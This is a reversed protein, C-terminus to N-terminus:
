THDCTDHECHAPTSQDAVKPRKRNNFAAGIGKGSARVDNYAMVNTDVATTHQSQGCQYCTYSLTYETDFDTSAGRLNVAAFRQSCIECVGDLRHTERKAPRANPLDSSIASGPSSPTRYMKARRHPRGASIVPTDDVQRATRRTGSISQQMRGARGAATQVQFYDTASDVINASHMASSAPSSWVPGPPHANSYSAFPLPSFLPGHMVSPSTAPSPELSGPSALPLESLAPSFFSGPSDPLSINMPLFPNRFPSGSVHPPPLALTLPQLGPHSVHRMLNLRREDGWVPVQAMSPLSPAHIPEAYAQPVRDLGSTIGFPLVQHEHLPGAVPSFYPPSSIQRDMIAYDPISSHIARRTTQGDPPVGPQIDQWRLDAEAFSHQDRLIPQPFSWHMPRANLSDQLGYEAIAIQSTSRSAVAAFPAASSANPDAVLQWHERANRLTVPASSQHLHGDSSQLELQDISSAENNAASLNSDSYVVSM